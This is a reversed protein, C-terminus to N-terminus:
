GELITMRAARENRGEAWNIEDIVEKWLAQEVASGMVQYICPYKVQEKLQKEKGIKRAVRFAEDAKRGEKNMLMVNRRRRFEKLKEKRDLASFDTTTSNM